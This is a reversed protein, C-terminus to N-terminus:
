TPIEMADEDDEADPFAAQPDIVVEERPDSSPAVVLAGEPKYTVKKLAVKADKSIKEMQPLTKLKRPHYMEDETLMGEDRMFETIEEETLPDGKSWVGEPHDAPRGFRRNTKQRVLKFGEVKRGQHVERGIAGDVAKALADLMPMWRALRALDELNSPAQIFDPEDNFDMKALEQTHERFEQCEVKANCWLCWDGPNIPANRKQTAEALERLKSQFAELEAREYRKHRIPGDEHELRPQIIEMDVGLAEPYDKMILVSYILLQTNDEVEVSVGAGFKLDKLKIYRDAGLMNFDATGGMLPHIWSGDMYKETVFPAIELGLLEGDLQANQYEMRCRDVFMMVAWAKVETVEGNGEGDVVEYRSYGELALREELKGGERVSPPILKTPHEEHVWIRGGVYDEADSGTTLCYDALAHGATGQEAFVSSKGPPYGQERQISGPCNIWQKSGSASLRAHKGM